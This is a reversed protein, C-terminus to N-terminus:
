SLVVYACKLTNTFDIFISMPYHKQSGLGIKHIGSPGYLRGSVDIWTWFRVPHWSVKPGVMPSATPIVIYGFGAAWIYIYISISARWVEDLTQWFCLFHVVAVISEPGTDPGGFRHGGDISLRQVLLPTDLLWYPIALLSHSYVYIYQSYIYIHIFYIYIYIHLM